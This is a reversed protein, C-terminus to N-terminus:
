GDDADDAPPADPVCPHVLQWREDFVSEPDALDMVPTGVPAIFLTMPGCSLVEREFRGLM